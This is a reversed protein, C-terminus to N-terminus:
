FKTITFPTFDNTKIVSSDLQLDSPQLKHPQKLHEVITKVEQTQQRTFAWQLLNM